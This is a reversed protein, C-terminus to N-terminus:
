SATARVVYVPDATPAQRFHPDDVPRWWNRASETSYGSFGGASRLLSLVYGMREFEHLDMWLASAKAPFWRNSFGVLMAGGPRLVRRCQRLVDRPFALYEVSLHLLVADFAADAFPLAPNRNLDHVVHRALLPNAAMERANMGLGTVDLDSGPPLHTRVSSMLDLVRAGPPLGRASAEALLERAQADIHDVLRPQAYFDADDGPSLRDGPGTEGYDTEPAADTSQMGPGWDCIEELWCALRGGTDSPKPAADLVTAELRFPRGALPHNLDLLVTDADLDLVQAPRADGPFVGSLHEFMGRPYFRGRRLGPTRVGIRSPVFARRPLRVVLSPDRRPLADGPQYDLAASEGPALGTLAQEMGPPFIDRWINAKRALFRETHAGLGSEWDLRFEITAYSNPDIRHM